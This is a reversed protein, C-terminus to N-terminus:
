ENEESFKCCIVGNVIEGVAVVFIGLALLSGSLRVFSGAIAITRPKM